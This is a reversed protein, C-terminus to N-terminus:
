GSPWRIPSSSDAVARDLDITRADGLVREYRDGLAAQLEAELQRHDEADTPWDQDSM